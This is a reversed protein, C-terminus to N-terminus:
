CYNDTVGAPDCLEIRIIATDAGFLEKGNELLFADLAAVLAKLMAPTRDDKRQARIDFTPQTAHPYQVAGGTAVIRLV